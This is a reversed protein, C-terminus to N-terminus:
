KPLHQRIERLVAKKIGSLITKSTMMRSREACQVESVVNERVKILTQRASSDENVEALREVDDVMGNKQVLKIVLEAERAVCTSQKRRIERITRLEDAEAVTQAPRQRDVESYWLARDQSREEEKEKDVVKLGM